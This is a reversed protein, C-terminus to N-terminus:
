IEFIFRLLISEIASKQDENCRRRCKGSATTLIKISEDTLSLLIIFKSLTWIKRSNLITLWFYCFYRNAVLQNCSTPGPNISFIMYMETWTKRSIRSIGYKKGLDRVKKSHANKNRSKRYKKYWYKWYKHTSIVRRLTEM